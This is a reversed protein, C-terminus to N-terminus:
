TDVPQHILPLQGSIRQRRVHDTGDVQSPEQTDKIGLLNRLV